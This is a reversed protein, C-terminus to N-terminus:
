TKDASSCDINYVFKALMELKKKLIDYIKNINKAKMISALLGQLTNIAALDNQMQALVLMKCVPIVALPWNHAEKKYEAFAEDYQKLLSYADGRFLHINGYEPIHMKLMTDTIELTLAPDKLILRSFSLLAYTQTYGEPYVKLINRVIEKSKQPTFRKTMLEQVRCSAYSSRAIMSFALLLLICGCFICM